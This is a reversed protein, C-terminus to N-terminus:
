CNTSTNAESRIFNCDRGNGQLILISLTFVDFMITTALLYKTSYTVFEAHLVSTALLLVLHINSINMECIFQFASNSYTTVISHNCVSTPSLRHAPHYPLQLTCFYTRDKKFQFCLDLLAEFYVQRGFQM